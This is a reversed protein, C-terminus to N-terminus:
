LTDNNKMKKILCININKKNRWSFIYQPNKNSTGQNPAELSYGCCTNEHPFLFFIKTGMNGLSRYSVVCILNQNISVQTQQAELYPAHNKPSLISVNAYKEIFIINQRMLIMELCELTVSHIIYKKLYKSM